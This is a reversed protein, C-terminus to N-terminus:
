NGMKHVKVEVGPMLTGEQTQSGGSPTKPANQGPTPANQAGLTGVKGIKTITKLNGNELYVVDVDDGAVLNKKAYEKAEPTSPIYTDKGEIKLQINNTQNAVKLFKEM